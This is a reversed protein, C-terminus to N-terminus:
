DEKGQRSKIPLKKGDKNVYFWWEGEKVLVPFPGNEEEHNKRLKSYIAPLVTKGDASAMGYKEAITLDIWVDSSLNMEDYKIPLVIKGEKNVLGYKGHQGVKYGWKTTSYDPLEITHYIMPLVIEGTKKILGQLTDKKVLLLNDYLLTIDDYIVPLIEKGSKDIIGLQPHESNRKQEAIAKGNYFDSVYDYKDFSIEKGNKDVFLNENESNRIKLLGNSFCASYHMQESDSMLLANFKLANFDWKPNKYLINGVTDKLVTVQKQNDDYQSEVIRDPAVAYSSGYLTPGSIIKGNKTALSTSDGDSLELIKENKWEIRDYKPNFLLKGNVRDYLGIKSNSLVAIYSQRGTGANDDMYGSQYGNQISINDFEIPVIIKGSIGALGTKGGKNLILYPLGLYTAVKIDEYQYPVIQKGSENFLAAKNDKKAIFYFLPKGNKSDAQQKLEYELETDAYVEIGKENVMMLEDNNVPILEKGAADLVGCKNNKYVILFNGLANVKTYQVPVIMKGTQDILGTLNSQTACILDSGPGHAFDDYLAPTVEKGNKDMLGSKDNPTTYSFLNSNEDGWGQFYKYKPPIILTGNTNACGKLGGKEVEVANDIIYSKSINDYKPAQLVAGTKLDAWGCLGDKKIEILHPDLDDIEDYLPQLITKGATDILGFKGDIKVVLFCYNKEPEKDDKESKIDVADYRFPVIIEGTSNIAGYADNKVGSTIGYYGQNSIKDIRIKGSKHLFQIKNNVKVEAFDGDFEACYEAITQAGALGTNNIKQAKLNGFPIVLLVVTNCIIVTLYKKM